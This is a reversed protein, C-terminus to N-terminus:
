NFQDKTTGNKDLIYTNIHFINVYFIDIIGNYDFDYYYLYFLNKFFISDNHNVVGDGNLDYVLKPNPYPNEATSSGAGKFM